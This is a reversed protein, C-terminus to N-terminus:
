NYSSFSVATNEAKHRQFPFQMITKFFQTFVEISDIICQTFLLM